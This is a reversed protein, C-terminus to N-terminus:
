KMPVGVDKLTGATLVNGLWKDLTKLDTTKQVGAVVKKTVQPGFKQRLLSVLSHQRGKREGELEGEARLAEAITLGM